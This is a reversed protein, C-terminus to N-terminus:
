APLSLYLDRERERERERESIWVTDDRLRCVAKSCGNQRHDPGMKRRAHVLRGRGDGGGSVVNVKM